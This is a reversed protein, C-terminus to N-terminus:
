LLSTGSDLLAPRWSMANRLKSISELVGLSTVNGIVTVKKGAFDINFSTVGEMKSIHKKLKKECGRCDLSVRLVVVQLPSPPKSDSSEDTEKAESLKSEDGPVLELGPDSESLGGLPSKDNLLYRTSSAPSIYDGARTCSWSKRIDSSNIKNDDENTDFNGSKIKQGNPKMFKMKEEEANEESSNQRNNKQQKKRQKPSIPQQQSNCPPLSKGNRRSDRIIPNYRDISRGSGLGLQITSSSSSSEEMSLCVSTAVQSACFIDSGKM